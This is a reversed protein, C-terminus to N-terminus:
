ATIEMQLNRFNAHKGITKILYKYIKSDTRNRTMKLYPQWIEREMKRLSKFYQSSLYVPEYGRMWWTRWKEAFVDGNGLIFQRHERSLGGRGM